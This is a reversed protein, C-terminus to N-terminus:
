HPSFEFCVYGPCAAVDHKIFGQCIVECIQISRAGPQDDADSSILFSKAKSTPSKSATHQRSREQRGLNAHDPWAQM